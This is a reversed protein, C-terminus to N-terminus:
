VKFYKLFVRITAREYYTDSEVPFVRFWSSENHKVIQYKYLEGRQYGELGEDGRPETHCECHGETSVKM